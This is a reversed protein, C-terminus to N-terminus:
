TWNGSDNKAHSRVVVFRMRPDASRAASRVEISQRAAFKAAQSGGQGTRGGGRRPRRPGHGAGGCRAIVRIPPTAWKGTQKTPYPARDSRTAPRRLARTRRHQGQRAVRGARRFGDGLVRRTAVGRVGYHTRARVMPALRDSAGRRRHPGRGGPPGSGRLARRALVNEATLDDDCPTRRPLTSVPKGARSRSQTM